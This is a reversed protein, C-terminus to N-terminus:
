MRKECLVNRLDIEARKATNGLILNFRYLSTSSDHYSIYHVVSLGCLPFILQLLKDLHILFTPNFTNMNSLICVDEKLRAFWTRGMVVLLKELELAISNRNIMCKFQSVPNILQVLGWTWTRECGLRSAAVAHSLLRYWVWTAVLSISLLLISCNVFM